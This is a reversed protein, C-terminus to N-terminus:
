SASEIRQISESSQGNAHLLPVYFKNVYEKLMRRASFEPANTRIANKVIAVWGHPVRDQDCKYYLPIVEKELVNYLVNADHDDQGQEDLEKSTTPFAWGNAGDYGEKWWGDLVSLNPVGNLAAKQGSTGSAEFPARPNNLWVDVGQVLFKAVHMDYDEIFAIRGGMDRSQAYRYVEHILQQGPEDAPHAKGAFIFQVPRWQNQLINRLRDLDRFLLNARKYTAFRRGFGITLVYPDLFAGGAMVQDAQLRNFTWGSRIRHRIFNLLKRKLVQRVDWIVHDPVDLIKQWIAPDDSESMWDPGLYKSYLHNMESAIWTPVHVGNTVHRIPVDSEQLDPWLCQWMRRSVRGHEASVGNVLSSFYIGLATMHFHDVSDNPHKGFEFFAEKSLGCQEWFGAFYENMLHHSFFDHGAKVPTHTTFMSSQRIDEIAKSIPLGARVFEQLRELHLFAAHGENAHWAQPHIELARLARVGGIGLIMEQALRVARDGGYLRASLTRDESTNEPVDTDLLYLCVRGVFVKWVVCVVVRHNLEVAIRCQEGSPTMAPQIPLDKRNLNEYKAEQWGDLGIVQRFYSQRYMFSVGVLPVGLDSAEKLHDGALIGLGGSYIPVSNHLGFEASFYAIPSDTLVPYKAGFWHSNTAMYEDYAKFAEVYRRRFIVDEALHQLREPKIEQLQKVPNHHTLRWLTQDLAEFLQRSTPTWSWWLNNSLEHLRPLCDHLLTEHTSGTKPIDTM